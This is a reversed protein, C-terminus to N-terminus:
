GGIAGLAVGKAALERHRTETYAQHTGCVELLFGQKFNTQPAKGLTKGQPAVM